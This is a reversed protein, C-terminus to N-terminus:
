PLGLLRGVAVAAAGLSVVGIFPVKFKLAIAAVVVALLRSDLTIARGSTMSNLGVLAALLGVTTALMVKSVVPEDLWARPLLYGALKTLYAVACAALIWWIM